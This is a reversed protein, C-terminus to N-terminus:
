LQKEINKQQFYQCHFKHIVKLDAHFEDEFPEGGNYVSTGNKGTGLDDDHAFVVVKYTCSSNGSPDGTQVLFGGINRHFICGTYYNSACLALFNHVAKPCKDCYLEFKLKGLTTEVTVSM